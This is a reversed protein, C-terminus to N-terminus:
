PESDQTQLSSSPAKLQEDTSHKLAKTRSPNRSKRRSITTFHPRLSFVWHKAVSRDVDHKKDGDSDEDDPIEIHNDYLLDRLKANDAEMANFQQELSAVEAELARETGEM